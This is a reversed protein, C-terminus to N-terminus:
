IDLHSGKLWLLWLIAGVIYEPLGYENYQARLTIM